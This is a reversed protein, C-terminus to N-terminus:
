PSAGLGAGHFGLSLFLVNLLIFGMFIVVYSSLFRGVTLYKASIPLLLAVSFTFYNPHIDDTALSMTLLIFFFLVCYLKFNSGSSKYYKITFFLTSLVYVAQLYHSILFITNDDFQLWNLWPFPGVLARLYDLPMYLIFKINIADRFYSSYGDGLFGMLNTRAFVISVIAILFFFIYSQKASIGAKLYRVTYLLTPMFIYVSRLLAMSLSATILISIAKITKSNFSTLVLYFGFIVFFQGVVDRWMMISIFSFPQFLSIIFITKIQSRNLGFKISILSIMIATYISFLTNQISIDLLNSNGSIFLNSMVYNIFFYKGQVLVLGLPVSFYGNDIRYQAIAEMARTTILYEYHDFKMSSSLNLFYEPWVYFQWFIYGISLKVFVGVLTILLINIKFCRYYQHSLYIVSSLAAFLAVLYSEGRGLEGGVLSLLLLFIMYSVFLHTLFNNIIGRRM